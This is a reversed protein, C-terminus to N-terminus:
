RGPRGASFVNRTVRCHFQGVELKNEMAMCGSNVRQKVELFEQQAVEAQHLLQSADSGDPADEVLGRTFNRLYDM